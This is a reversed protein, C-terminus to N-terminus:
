ATGVSLATPTITGFTMRDYEDKLSFFCRRSLNLRGSAACRASYSLTLRGTPLFDVCDISGDCLNLTVSSASVEVLSFYRGSNGPSM